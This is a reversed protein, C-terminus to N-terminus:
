LTYVCGFGSKSVILFPRFNAEKEKAELVV